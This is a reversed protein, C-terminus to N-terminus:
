HRRNRAALRPGRKPLGILVVACVIVGMAMWEAAGIHEGAFLMGLLVAVVPNVYAYSTAAAPRVHRLLYQYASFAILSGFVVLYALVAWGTATPLTHMREGALQSAVMLVAGGALMEAAPAMAGAPLSLRKGWVSGLAWSAAALLILVAGVPSAQLNGGMNLLLMGSLGLGIGLWERRTNRQGWLQAFVLTFLPVTAVGLAAVGSAVWQEAVTVGGNGGALLLTGVLAAGKWEARTPAPAGHRRLWVYMLSGAILFRVGAMMLPPWSEVGFRIALYTSGWIVYLAFFSAILRLRDAPAPAQM